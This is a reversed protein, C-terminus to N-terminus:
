RYMGWFVVSWNMYWYMSDFCVMIYSIAGMLVSSVIIEKVWMGDLVMVGLMIVPIGMFVVWSDVDDFMVVVMTSLVGIRMMVIMVILMVIMVVKMVLVSVVRSWMFNWNHSVGSMMILLWMMHHVWSVMLGVWLEIVVVVVLMIHPWVIEMFMFDVVRDVSLWMVSLWMVDVMVLGNLMVVCTLPINRMM